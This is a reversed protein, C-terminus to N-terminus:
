RDVGVIHGGVCHELEGRKVQTGYASKLNEFQYAAEDNLSQKLLGFDRAKDSELNIVRQM